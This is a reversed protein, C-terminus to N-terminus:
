AQHCIQSLQAYHFELLEKKFPLSSLSITELHLAAIFFRSDLQSHLHRDPAAVLIAYADHRPDHAVVHEDAPRVRVKALGHLILGM